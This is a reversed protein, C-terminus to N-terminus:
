GCWGRGDEDAGRVVEQSICYCFEHPYVLIATSFVVSNTPPSGILMFSLSTVSIKLFAYMLKRLRMRLVPGGGM